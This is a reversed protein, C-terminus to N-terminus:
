VIIRIYLKIESTGTNTIIVGGKQNSSFTVVSDNVSSEEVIKISTWQTSIIALLGMKETERVCILNYSRTIEFTGNPQLTIMQLAFSSNMLGNKEATATPLLGAM